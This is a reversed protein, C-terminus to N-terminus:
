EICGGDFWNTDEIQTEGPYVWVLNSCAGFVVDKDTDTANLKIDSRFESFIIEVEMGDNPAAISFSYEGNNVTTEYRHSQGNRWVNAIVKTGNPVDERGDLTNDLEAQAKGTIVASVAESTKTPEEAEKKCAVLMVSAAALSFLLKKM